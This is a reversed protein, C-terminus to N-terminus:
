AGRPTCVIVINHPGIQGLTYTNDDGVPNPLPSHVKDLLTEAAALELPLACIWGVTYDDHSFQASTTRGHHNDLRRRKPAHIAEDDELRQNAM